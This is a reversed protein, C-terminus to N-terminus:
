KNTENIFKVIEDVVRKVSYAKYDPFEYKDCSDNDTKIKILEKKNRYLVDVDFYHTDVYCNKYQYMGDKIYIKKKYKSSEVDNKIVELSLITTSTSSVNFRSSLEKKISLVDNAVIIKISDNIKPQINVPQMVCSNFFLVLIIISIILKM